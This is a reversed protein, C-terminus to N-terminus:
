LVWGLSELDEPDEADLFDEVGLDELGILWRSTERGGLETVM